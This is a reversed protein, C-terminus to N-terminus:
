DCLAQFGTVDHFVDGGDNVASAAAPRLHGLGAAFIGLLDAFGKGFGVLDDPFFEVGSVWQISSLRKKHTKPSLATRRGRRFRSALTASYFFCYGPILYVPLSCTTHNPKITFVATMFDTNWVFMGALPALARFAAGDDDYWSFRGDGCKVALGAILFDANGFGIGTFFDLTRAAFIPEDNWYCVYIM